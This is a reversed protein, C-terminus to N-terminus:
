TGASPKVPEDLNGREEANGREDDADTKKGLVHLHAFSFIQVARM